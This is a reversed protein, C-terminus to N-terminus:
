VDRCGARVGGSPQHPLPLPPPCPAAGARSQVFGPILYLRSGPSERRAKWCQKTRGSLADRAEKRQRTQEQSAREVRFFARIRERRKVVAISFTRFPMSALLVSLRTSNLCVPARISFFSTLTRLLSASCKSIERPSRSAPIVRCANSCFCAEPALALGVNIACAVCSLQFSSALSRSTYREARLGSANRNMKGTHNLTRKGEKLWRSLPAPRRHHTSRGRVSNRDPANERRLTGVFRRFDPGDDGPRSM